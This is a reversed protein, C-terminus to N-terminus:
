HLKQLVKKLVQKNVVALNNNEFFDIIDKAAVEAWKDGVFNRLRVKLLEKLGWRHEILYDKVCVNRKRLEVTM